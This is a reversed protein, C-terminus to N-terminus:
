STEKDSKSLNFYQENKLPITVELYEKEKKLILNPIQILCLM